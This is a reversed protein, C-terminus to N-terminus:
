SESKGTIKISFFGAFTVVVDGTSDTEPTTLTVPFETGEHASELIVVKSTNRPHVMTLEIPRHLPMLDENVANFIYHLPPLKLLTYITRIINHRWIQKISLKEVSYNVRVHMIKPLSM